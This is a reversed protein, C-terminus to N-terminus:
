STMLLKNTKGSSLLLACEQTECLLFINYFFTVMATVGWRRLHGGDGIKYEELRKLLHVYTYTEKKSFFQKTGNLCNSM